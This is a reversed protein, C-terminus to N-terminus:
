MCLLPGGGDRVCSYMIFVICVIIKKNACITKREIPFLLGYVIIRNSSAMPVCTYIKHLTHLSHTVTYWCMSDVPLRTFFSFLFTNRPLYYVVSSLSFLFPWSSWKQAADGALFTASFWKLLEKKSFVLWRINKDCKANMYYYHHTHTYLSVFMERERECVM